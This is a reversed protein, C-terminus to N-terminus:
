DQDAVGPGHDIITLNLRGRAEDVAVEVNIPKHQGYKVANDLLAWLVQDLQDADAVALWGGSRDELSFAVDSIALAEWARRVRPAIGFVEAQPRLAGSELRTVTLLQRVMRSLREAQETIISLRRDDREEGLQEAFARISTLPTQLNHSVGRLFDDKAADLELLQANQATVRQFLQANRIAVGIEAAFLELLNQDAPEWARTAPLHGDILGLREDGARLVARIPRPDGPVSEEEEIQGPDGLVIRSDIMGFALRADEAARGVLFEVGDRPSAHEIAALIRVLERNRRELAGALRNHSEALRSLEDEGGVIIPTSLDGASVRDVAAAIARLPATLDAALLYAVLVAILAVLAVFLLLLRPLTSPPDPLREALVLLLGFVALPIVAAAILSFTLRTRFGIGAGFTPPPITRDHFPAPQDARDPGAAPAGGPDEPTAAPAEPTTDREAPNAAPVVEDGAQGPATM